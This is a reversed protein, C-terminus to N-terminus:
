WTNKSPFGGRWAPLEGTSLKVSVAETVGFEDMFATQLYSVSLPTFMEEHAVSALKQLDLSHSSELLDKANTVFDLVERRYGNYASSIKDLLETSHSPATARKESPAPGTIIVIRKEISPAVASRSALFPSLMKALLESFRGGALGIPDSDETKSFVSGEEDLSDALPKKGLRVLTVRQFERPRLLIGMGASTSFADELPLGAMSDLLSSPLDLERKNLAPVIKGAFRTPIDKSIESLKPKALKGFAQKLTQEDSAAKDLGELSLHQEEAVQASPKAELKGDRVIFLMTKATRDAGIFVFSIDFFRPYDNYVFVKRGDPYIKNMDRKCHDCYDNRTVSLGRIGKGGDAKLKKHYELAASGPHIHRKPDFTAIAKRYTDWDLCIACTDYPVKSGMSVDIFEGLRLKDWVGTGGFKMCKDHDVRIVLEVRKMNPNWTALEVDGYAKSADKNRHHGYAHAQYFTPFGYGWDKSVIKDVVPIGAWKDPMHVLSAEPFADGNVNSSYYESAGMANVLVYQANKSPRLSDIYRAVDPLLDSATKEFQSDAKGFLPIVHIGRETQGFYHSVKYM